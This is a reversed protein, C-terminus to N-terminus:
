NNVVSTDAVSVTNGLVSVVDQITPAKRQAAEMAAEMNEQAKEQREQAMSEASIGTDEKVMPTVENGVHDKIRINVHGLAVANKYATIPSFANVKYHVPEGEPLRDSKKSPDVAEVSFDKKEPVFEGGVDEVAEFMNQGVVAKYDDIQAKIAEAMAVEFMKNAETEKGSIIANIVSRAALNKM